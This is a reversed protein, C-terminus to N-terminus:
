TAHHYVDDLYRCAVEWAGPEFERAIYIGEGTRLEALLYGDQEFITGVYNEDYTRNMRVCTWGTPQRM